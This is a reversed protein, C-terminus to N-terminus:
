VTSYTVDNIKLKNYIVNATLKENRAHLSLTSNKRQPDIESLGEKDMCKKM